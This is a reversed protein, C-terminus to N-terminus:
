TNGREALLDQALVQAPRARRARHANRGERPVARRLLRAARPVAVPVEGQAASPPGEGPVAQTREEAAARVRQNYQWVNCGRKHYTCSKLASVEHHHSAIKVVFLISDNM